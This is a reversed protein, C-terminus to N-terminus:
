KGQANREFKERVKPRVHELIYGLVEEYSEPPVYVQFPLIDGLLIMDANRKLRILNVSEFYIMQNEDHPQRIREGPNGIHVTMLVDDMYYPIRYKGATVKAAIFYILLALVTCLISIGAAILLVLNMDMHKFFGFVAFVAACGYIPTLIYVLMSRNRSLDMRYVWHWSGDPEKVIQSRKESM